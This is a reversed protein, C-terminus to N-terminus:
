RDLLSAIETEGDTLLVSLRPILQELLQNKTEAEIKLPNGLKKRLQSFRIEAINQGNLTFKCNRPGYHTIHNIQM